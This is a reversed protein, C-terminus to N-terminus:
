YRVWGPHPLLAPAGETGSVPKSGSGPQMGGDQCLGANWTRVENLCVNCLDRYVRSMGNGGNLLSLNVSVLGPDRGRRTCPVPELCHVGAVGARACRVWAQPGGILGTVANRPEDARDCAPSAPDFPAGGDYWWGRNRLLHFALPLVKVVLMPSAITKVLM